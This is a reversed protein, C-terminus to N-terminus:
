HQSLTPLLVKSQPEMYITLLFELCIPLIHLYPPSQQQQQQKQLSLQRSTMFVGELEMTKTSMTGWSQLFGKVRDM